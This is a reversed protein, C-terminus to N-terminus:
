MKAIGRVRSVTEGRVIGSTGRLRSGHVEKLEKWKPSLWRRKMIEELFKPSVDYVVNGPEIGDDRRSYANHGAM